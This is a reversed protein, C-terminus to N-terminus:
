KDDESVKNTQSVKKNIRDYLERATKWSLAKTLNGNKDLLWREILESNTDM